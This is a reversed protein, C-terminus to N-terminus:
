SVLGQVRGAQERNEKIFARVEERLNEDEPRDSLDM